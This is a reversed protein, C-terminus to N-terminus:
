DDDDIDFGQSRWQAQLDEKAENCADETIQVEWGELIKIWDGMLVFDPYHYKDAEQQAEKLKKAVVDASLYM